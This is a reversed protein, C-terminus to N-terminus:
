SALASLNDEREIELMFDLVDDNTMAPLLPHDELVETPINVLRKKAATSSLLMIVQPDADKQILGGCNLCNFEYFNRRPARPYMVVTVAAEPLSLDGCLPCSAKVTGAM